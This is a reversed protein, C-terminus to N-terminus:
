HMAELKKCDRNSQTEDPLTTQCLLASDLQRQNSLKAGKLNAEKLNAGELNTNWLNAGEMRVKWLNAGKLIADQLNAKDLWAEQLKAEQLYAGQLNVWQLRAEQLHVRWLDAGELNARSLYAKRLIGARQEPAYLNSSKLFEILMQRRDKDLERLAITTKSQAVIFVPTSSQVTGLKQEILMESMQDLYKNLADQQTRNNNINNAILNGAAAIVLPVLLVQAIDWFRKEGFGWRWLRAFPTNPIQGGSQEQQLKQIIAKLKQKDEQKNEQSDVSPSSSPKPDPNSITM